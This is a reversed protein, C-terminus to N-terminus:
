YQSVAFLLWSAIPQATRNQVGIKRIASGSTNSIFCGTNAPCTSHVIPNGGSSYQNFWYNRSAGFSAHNMNVYSGNFGNTTGGPITPPATRYYTVNYAEAVVPVLLAAAGAGLALASRRPMLDRRM